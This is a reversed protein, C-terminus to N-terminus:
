LSFEQSSSGGMGQARTHHVKVLIKIDVMTPSISIDESM